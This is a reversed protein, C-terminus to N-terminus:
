RMAFAWLGTLHGGLLGRKVQLRGGSFGPCPINFGARREGPSGGGCPLRAPATEGDESVLRWFGAFDGENVVSIWNAISSGPVTLLDVWDDGQGETSIAEEGSSHVVNM